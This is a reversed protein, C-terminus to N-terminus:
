SELSEEDMIDDSRQWLKEEFVLTDLLAAALAGVLAGISSTGAAEWGVAGVSALGFSRLMNPVEDGLMQLGVLTAAIYAFGVLIPTGMFMAKEHAWLHALVLLIGM